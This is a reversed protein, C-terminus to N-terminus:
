KQREFKTYIIHNKNRDRKGQLLLYQQSFWAYSSKLVPFFIRELYAVTAERVSTAKAKDGVCPNIVRRRGEQMRQGMQHKKVLWSTTSVLMALVKASTAAWVLQGVVELSDVAVHADADWSLAVRVRLRFWDQSCGLPM